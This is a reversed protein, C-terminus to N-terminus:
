LTSANNVLGYELLRTHRAHNNHAVCVTGKLFYFSSGERVGPIM